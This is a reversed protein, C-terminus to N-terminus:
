NPLMLDVGYHAQSIIMLNDIHSPNPNVCLGRSLLSNTNCLSNSAAENFDSSPEPSLRDPWCWIACCIIKRVHRGVEQMIYKYNQIKGEM